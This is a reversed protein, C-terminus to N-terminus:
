EQIKFVVDVVTDNDVYESAQISQSFVVSKEDDSPGSISIKLGISDTIKVVESKKLGILNPVEIKKNEKANKDTYLIVSKYKAIKEGEYPIQSVITDGDGIIVPRFCLNIACQKAEEVKKGVFNPVDIGYQKM